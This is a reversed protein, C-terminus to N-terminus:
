PDSVCRLIFVSVSVTCIQGCLSGMFVCVYVSVFMDKVCVQIKTLVAKTIGPEGGVKSARGSILTYNCYKNSLLEYYSTVRQILSWCSDIIKNNTGKKLNTRRLSNILSSKGM